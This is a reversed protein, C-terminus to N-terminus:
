STFLSQLVDYNIKNPLNKDSKGLAKLVSEGTSQIQSYDELTNQKKKSNTDKNKNNDNHSRKKHKKLQKSLHPLHNKMMDDWILMKMEKEKESLIINEIESDYVDSLSNCSPSSSCESNLDLNENQDNINNSNNDFFYNFDTLINNINNTDNKKQGKQFDSSDNLFNNYAEDVDNLINNIECTVTEKLTTNYTNDNSENSINNSILSPNNDAINNSHNNKNVHNNKDNNKNKKENKNENENEDLLNNINDLYNTESTYEKNYSIHTGKHTSKSVDTNVSFTDILNNHLNMKTDINKLINSNIDLNITNMIKQALNHIDNGKPNENCIEDLHISYDSKTLHDSSNNNFILDTYDINSHTSSVLNTNNEQYKSTSFNHNMIHTVMKNEENNILTSSSMDESLNDVDDCLSLTKNKESINDKFKKKNYYIVCPPINNSPIDNISIKDFESAKIQATSTNKFEALRKIITPNSIRVIDAITNSNISIGHMRTSILLAAGCLGTPRRGTSIWDRTMAQILKIGTYTVKYIDNKLNLKHAFRELFLSPDINPVNIHLLRLLKLFTKGLPKVPTQLIDSFDILMIPSKERRCITYLCSAAVYSNNRGMTFNRQLAMLYIRQAAEIHQSSLHLHDAIKQINVYGKQLSIERSERIGWSLIFSKNGSSPIFQGVM